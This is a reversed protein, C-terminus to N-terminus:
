FAATLGVLLTAANVSHPSLLAHNWQKTCLSILNVWHFGRVKDQDGGEFDQGVFVLFVLLNYFHMYASVVLM